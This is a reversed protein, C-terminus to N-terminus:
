CRSYRIGHFDSLRQYYEYTLSVSPRVPDITVLPTRLLCLMLVDDM